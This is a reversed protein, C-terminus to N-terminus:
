WVGLIAFRVSKIPKTLLDALQSRGDIIESTTMSTKQGEFKHSVASEQNTQYLQRQRHVADTNQHRPWVVTRVPPVEVVSFSWNRCKCCYDTEPTSLATPKQLRSTWSMAGDAFTAIIGTTSLRNEKVGTFDVNSFCARWFGYYVQFGLQQCVRLNGATGYSGTLMELPTNGKVAIPWTRNLIYVAANCAEAWLEKPLGRAHAYLAAKWLQIIKKSRQLMRNRLIIVGVHWWM